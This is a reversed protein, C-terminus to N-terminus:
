ASRLAARATRTRTRTLALGRTPPRAAVGPPRARVPVLVYLVGLLQDFTWITDPVVEEMVTRREGGRPYLPLVQWFAYAGDRRREREAGDEGEEGDGDGDTVTPGEAADDIAGRGPAEEGDAGEGAARPPSELVAGGSGEGGARARAQRRAAYGCMAEGTRRAARRRRRVVDARWRFAVAGGRPTSAGTGRAANASEARM